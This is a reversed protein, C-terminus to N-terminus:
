IKLQKVLERQKQQGHYAMSNTSESAYQINKTLQNQYLPLYCPIATNPNNQGSTIYICFSINM